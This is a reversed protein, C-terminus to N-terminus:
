NRIGEFQIIANYIDMGCETLQYGDEFKIIGLQINLRLNDELYERSINVPIRLIRGAHEALCYISPNEGFLESAKGVLEAGNTAIRMIDNLENPFGLFEGITNRIAIIQSLYEDAPNNGPYTHYGEMAYESMM